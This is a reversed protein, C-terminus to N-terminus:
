QGDPKKEVYLQASETRIVIIEDGRDIMGLGSVADYLKGDIKVKGSPRLTTYAVGEKGVLSRSSTDVGVFGENKDQISHLSLNKFAGSNATFLRKGLVLSLIFGGFLAVIVTTLASLIKDPHVGEFDFVVNNILSLVLATFSFLIGLLGAVGFGPIVFIELAILILGVVFLLIEWNAALGELYLPAFYAVAATIAIILPFGIGPTQMEFYIGGLIAMILLGSVMPNVLFGIIKELTTPKYEVIEYESVGILELVEPVNDAIGECFGYKMAESPTFTLVKGTDIIGPIYVREDVMAEAIQPDRFWRFTTDQGSIITDGGHAEATARMTSRMYSQYKDPMQQGTQNVVTAAGISGGPRMYISDCAVSILAGASAANNDIFVYVPIPSNLIKTRISDADLVTGGYTNMHILMLDANLSDAAEFAQKTQRWIAPAINEKINFKYVLTNRTEKPVDPEQAWSSTALILLFLIVYLLGSRM